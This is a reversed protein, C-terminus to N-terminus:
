KRLCLGKTEIAEPCTVGNPAGVSCVISVLVEGENCSVTKEGIVVRLQNSPPGPEGKPGAPGAPGPPGADGKQGSLGAPGQEGQPGRPGAHGQPGPPGPKQECGALALALLAVGSFIVRM